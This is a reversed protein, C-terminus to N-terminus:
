RRTEEVPQGDRLGEAGTVIVREGTAPPDLGGLVEVDRPTTEGVEEGTRVLRLRARRSGAAGEVTFVVELQGRRVVASRPVVVAPRRAVPVRARGFMGPRIGPSEPLDIKVTGTRTLPDVAPVIESVQGALKRPGLADLTVVLEDKQKLTGLFREEILAELRLASPDYISLLPKGPSATDGPDVRKESVVGGFPASITAFGHVVQAEELAKAAAAEEAEAGSLRFRAIDLEEQTAAQRDFLNKTRELETRAEALIEGRAKLSAQAQELKAKLDRGDLVILVDGEAVQDGSQRRVEVVGALLRSAIETQRLPRVTGVAEAIVPIEIREVPGTEVRIPAGEAEVATEPPRARRSWLFGALLLAGLTLALLRDLRRPPGKKWLRM